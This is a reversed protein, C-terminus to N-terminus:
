RREHHGRFLAVDFHEPRKQFALGADIEHIKFAPGRKMVGDRGPFLLGELKEKGM